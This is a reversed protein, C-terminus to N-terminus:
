AKYDQLEITALVQLQKIFDDMAQLYTYIMVATDRPCRGSKVCSKIEITISAIEHDINKIEIGLYNNSGNANQNTEPQFQQILATLAQEINSTISELKQLVEQSLNRECEDTVALYGLLCIIGRLRDLVLMLQDKKKMAIKKRGPEHSLLNFDEQLSLYLADLEKLAQRKERLNLSQNLFGNAFEVSLNKITTLYKALEASLMNKASEPWILLSIGFAIIVGIITDAIRTIGFSIPHQTSVGLVLVFTLTIFFMSIFYQQFYYIALFFFVPIFLYVGLQWHMFFDALLMSALVGSFTGLLREKGRRFSAGINLKLVTVAGFLVWYYQKIGLLHAILLSLLAVVAGKCAYKLYQKKVAEM